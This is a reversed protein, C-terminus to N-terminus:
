HMRAQLYGVFGALTDVARYDSEPVAIGTLEAVNEIVALFDMSDLDLVERLRDDPALLDLEAEPAVRRIAEEVAARATMSTKASM